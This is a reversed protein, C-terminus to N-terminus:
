QRDGGQDCIECVVAGNEGKHAVHDPCVAFTCLVCKALDSKCLGCWVKCLKVAPGDDHAFTLCDTNYDGPDLDVPDGCWGCSSLEVVGRRLVATIRDCRKKHYAIEEQLEAERERMRLAKTCFTDIFPDM